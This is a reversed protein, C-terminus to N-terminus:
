FSTSIMDLYFESSFSETKILFTKLIAKGIIGCGCGGRLPQVDAAIVVGEVDGVDVAVVVEKSSIRDLYKIRNPWCKIM